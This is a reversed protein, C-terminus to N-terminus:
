YYVGFPGFFQEVLVLCWCERDQGEVHRRDVDERECKARQERTSGCNPAREERASECNPASKM